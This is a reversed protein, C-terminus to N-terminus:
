PTATSVFRLTGVDLVEGPLVAIQFEHGVREDAVILYQKGAPVSSIEFYGNSDTKSLIETGLVYIEAQFPQGQEDVVTGRVSGVGRVLQQNDSRVFVVVSLGIVTVLLVLIVRQPLSLRKKLPLDEQLGNKFDKLSPSQEFNM